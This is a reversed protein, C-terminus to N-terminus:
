LPGQGALWVKPGRFPSILSSGATAISVRLDQRPAVSQYPHRLSSAHAGMGVCRLCSHTNREHTRLYRYEATAALLHHVPILLHSLVLSDVPHSYFTSESEINSSQVFIIPTSRVASCFNAVSFIYPRIRSFIYLVHIIQHSSPLAPSQSLTILFSAFALAHIRYHSSRTNSSSVSATICILQAVLFVSTSFVSFSFLFLTFTLCAIM